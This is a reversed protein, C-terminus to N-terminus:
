IYLQKQRANGVSNLKPIQYIIRSQGQPILLNKKIFGAGSFNSSAWFGPRIVSGNGLTLKYTPIKVLMDLKKAIEIYLPKKSQENGVSNLQLTHYINKSRGKPLLM